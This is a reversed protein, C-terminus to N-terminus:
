HIGQAYELQLESMRLGLYLTLTPFVRPYPVTLVRSSELVKGELGCPRSLGPIHAKGIQRFLSPPFSRLGFRARCAWMNVDDSKINIERGRGAARKFIGRV